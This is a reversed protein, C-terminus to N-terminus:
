DDHLELEDVDFEVTSAGFPRASAIGKAVEGMAKSNALIKAKDRPLASILLAIITAGLFSLSAIIAYPNGTVVAGVAVIAGISTYLVVLIWTPNLDGDREYFWPNKRSSM